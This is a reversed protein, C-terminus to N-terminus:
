PAFDFRKGRVGAELASRLNQPVARSLVLAARESSMGIIPVDSATFDV